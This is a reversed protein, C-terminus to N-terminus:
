SAQPTAQLPGSCTGTHAMRTAIATKLSITDGKGNNLREAEVITRDIDDPHVFAIFPQAFLEADSYGLQKSWAPNIKKFYGDFGVVSLM